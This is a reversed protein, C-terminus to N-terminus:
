QYILLMIVKNLLLVLRKNGMSSTVMEEIQPCRCGIPDRADLVQIIVDAADVVKKFEKYFSKRSHEVSSGSTCVNRELTSAQKKEFEQIHSPYM